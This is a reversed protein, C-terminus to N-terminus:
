FTFGAGAFITVYHFGDDDIFIRKYGSGMNIQLPGLEILFSASARLYPDTERTESVPTDFLNFSASAYTDAAIWMIGGGAAFSIGLVDLFRFTLHVDGSLGWMSLLEGAAVNKGDTDTSFYEFNTSFGLLGRSNFLIYPNVYYANNFVNGQSGLIIMKGGTMGFTIFDPPTFLTGFKEANEREFRLIEKEIKVALEDTTQKLFVMTEKSRTSIDVFNKGRINLVRLKIFLRETKNKEIAYSGTIIYHAGAKKYKELAAENKDGFPEPVTKEKGPRAKITHIGKKEISKAITGPIISSYYSSKSDMIKTTFNYIIIKKQAAKAATQAAKEPKKIGKLPNQGYLLPSLLLMFFMIITIKQKM